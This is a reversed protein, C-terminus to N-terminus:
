MLVGTTAKSWAASEGSGVLTTGVPMVNPSDNMVSSGAAKPIHVFVFHKPADAARGSAVTGMRVKHDSGAGRVRSVMM